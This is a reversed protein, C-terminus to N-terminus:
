TRIRPVSSPGGNIALKPPGGEHRKIARLVRRAAYHYRFAEAETRHNRTLGPYAERLSDGRLWRNNVRENWFVMTQFLYPREGGACDPLWVTSVWVAGVNDRGLVAYRPDGYLNAWSRLSIPHGKRNRRMVVGTPSRISEWLKLDAPDIDALRLKPPRHRM